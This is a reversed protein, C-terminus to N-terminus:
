PRSGRKPAPKGKEPTVNASAKLEALIAKADDKFSHGDPAVEVFRQLFNAAEQFKEKEGTAY